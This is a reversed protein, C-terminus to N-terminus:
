VQSFLTGDQFSRLSTTTLIRGFMQLGAWLGNAHFFLEGICVLIFTRVLQWSQYLWHNRDIRWKASWKRTVPLILSGLFILTFHYFGFLPFELRNWAFVMASGSRWFHLASCLIPGYHPGIKKRARVTLKKSWSSTALPYFVYDKFWTGLSIHWRKWFESISKSFFPQRFNEPLRIGFIEATGIVVDM